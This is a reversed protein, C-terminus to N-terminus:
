FWFSYGFTEVRIILNDRQSWSRKLLSRLVLLVWLDCPSYFLIAGLWNAGKKLHFSSCLAQFWNQWMNICFFWALLDIAQIEHHCKGIPWKSKKQSDASALLKHLWFLLIFVTYFRNKKKSEAAHCLWTLEIWKCWKVFLPNHLM